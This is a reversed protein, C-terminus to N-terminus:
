KKRRKRLHLTAAERIDEGREDTWEMGCVDCSGVPVTVNLEVATAPDAGYIVSTSKDAWTVSGPIGCVPCPAEDSITTNM